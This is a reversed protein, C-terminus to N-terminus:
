SITASLISGNHGSLVAIQKGSAADWVRATKDDSATVIRTGDQSFTASSVAREHGRLVVISQGTDADWLRATKDWSATLVHLGDPSFAVSSVASDHGRLITRERSQVVAASLASLTVGLKPKPDGTRRPWAALALKIARTPNTNVFTNAIGALAASQNNRALTER